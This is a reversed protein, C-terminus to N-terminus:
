SINYKLGSLREHWQLEDRAHYETRIFIVQNIFFAVVSLSTASTVIHSSQGVRNSIRWGGGDRFHGTINFGIIGYWRGVVAAVLM